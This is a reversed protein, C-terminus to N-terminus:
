PEDDPEPPVVRRMASDFDAEGEDGEELKKRLADQLAPTFDSDSMDPTAGSEHPENSELREKNMEKREQKFRDCDLVDRIKWAPVICTMSSNHKIHLKEDLKYGGSDRVYEKADIHGWDVGLLWHNDKHPYEISTQTDPWVPEVFRPTYRSKILIAPSGSYGGISRMEVLFSEQKIHLAKNWIPEEPMMAINGFRAAPLIKEKGEHYVLRGILQTHDGMGIDHEEIEDQTLLMDHSFAGTGDLYGTLMAAVDDGDPHREWSDPKTEIVDRSGDERNFCLWYNEQGEMLVHWNTVVYGFHANPTATPMSLLFGTGGVRKAELADAESPYLYVINKRYRDRTRMRRRFLTYPFGRASYRTETWYKFASHAM